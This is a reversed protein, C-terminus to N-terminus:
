SKHLKQPISTAKKKKKSVLTWNNWCCINFLIDKKWQIAKACKQFILQNYTYLAIETEEETGNIQADREGGLGCPRTKKLSVPRSIQHFSEELKM